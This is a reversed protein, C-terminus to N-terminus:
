AHVERTSVRVTTISTVLLAIFLTVILASLAEGGRFNADNLAHAKGDLVEFARRMSAELWHYSMRPFIGAGMQQGFHGGVAAGVAFGPHDIFSGICMGVLPLVCMAPLAMVFAKLTDRVMVDTGFTVVGKLGYDPDLVPGWGCKIRAAIASVAVLAVVFVLGVVLLALTKGLVLESRHVPRIMVLRATGESFESSLSSAGITVLIFSAFFSGMWLGWSFAAFFNPPPASSDPGSKDAITAYILAAALAALMSIVLGVLTFRQARLKRLEARMMRFCRAIM